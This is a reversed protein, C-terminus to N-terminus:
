TWRVWAQTCVGTGQTSVILRLFQYEAVISGTTTGASVTALDTWSAGETPLLDMDIPVLEGGTSDHIDVSNIGQLKVAGTGVVTVSYSPNTSTYNWNRGKIPGKTIALLTGTAQNLDGTLYGRRGDYIM